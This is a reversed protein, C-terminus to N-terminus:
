PAPDFGSRPPRMDILAIYALVDTYRANPHGKSFGLHDFNVRLGISRRAEYDYRSKPVYFGLLKYGEAAAEGDRTLLSPSPVSFLFM